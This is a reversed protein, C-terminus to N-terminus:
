SIGLRRRAEARRADLDMPLGNKGLAPGTSVNNNTMTRAPAPPAATQKGTTPATKEATAGRGFRRSKSLREQLTKEAADAFVIPDLTIGRAEIEERHQIYYKTMESFVGDWAEHANVLDFREPDAQIVRRVENRAGEIAQQQQVQVRDREAKERAAREEALQREIKTVRDDEPAGGQGAIAQDLVISIAKERDIGLQAALLAIADGKARAERITKLEALDAAHQKEAERVEKRKRELAAFERRRATADADAAQETEGEGDPKKEAPKDGEAPPAQEGEKAPETAPAPDADGSAQTGTKELFARVRPNDSAPAPPAAAPAAATETTLAAEDAM